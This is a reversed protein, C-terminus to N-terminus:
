PGRAPRSPSGRRHRRSGCIAARGQPHHGRSGSRGAHHRSRAFLRRAEAQQRRARRVSVFEAAGAAVASRRSARREHCRAAARPGRCQAGDAGPRRSQPRGRRGHTHAVRGISPRLGVIGCFSAPNRLSAAWTPATRSGRRAPPSRWRRAARPAPPRARRTGPIAPRASCKTSPIPAPASNRRTRSPTSWGAMAKSISSWSTPSRRSRQGQLDALGAHDARRRRQHPGQDPDAAGRAARARRGAEEDARHRAQPRPRLVADAARQGQRRGRRHAKGARRASRAAYSRGVQAQRRRCM